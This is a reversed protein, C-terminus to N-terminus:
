KELVCLYQGCESPGNYLAKMDVAHGYELALEPTIYIDLLLPAVKNEMHTVRQFFLQKHDKSFFNLYTFLIKGKAKLVRRAEKLMIVAEEQLLHTLVSFFCVLDVQENDLPIKFKDNYLFVFNPRQCKQRAYDLLEPVIDIGIYQVQDSLESCCLAYALRGSGCGVDLLSMGVGLKGRSIVLRLLINGMTQYQDSGGVALSAAKEKGYLSFLEKIYSPYDLRKNWCFSPAPIRGEFIGFEIYHILPNVGSQAVDPNNELYWSTNFTRCPNKGEKWGVELYHDLPCVGLRLVEPYAHIYFKVDFFGLRLIKEKIKEM